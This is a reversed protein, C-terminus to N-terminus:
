SRTKQANQHRDVPKAPKMEPGYWVQSLDWPMFWVDVREGPLADIVEYSCKKIRITSNLYVRCRRKMRFLPEIDITEPLM